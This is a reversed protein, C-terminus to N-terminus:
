KGVKLFQCKVQQAANFDGETNGIFLLNEFRTGLKQLAIELQAVRDLNDERTVVINFSLGLPGLAKRVLTKGQMTVLAKPKESYKEYLAMGENNLTKDKLVAIEAREWVEFIRTKTKADLKPITRTIPQIDSIGMIQSFEQFLKNYDIPLNILTGDFDFIVAAIL